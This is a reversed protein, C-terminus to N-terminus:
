EVTWENGESDCSVFYHDLLQEIGRYICQEYEPQEFLMECIVGSETAVPLPEAL